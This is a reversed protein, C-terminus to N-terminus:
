SFIAIQTVNAALGRIIIRCALVAESRSREKRRTRYDIRYDGSPKRKRDNSGSNRISKRM